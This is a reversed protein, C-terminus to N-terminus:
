IAPLVWNHHAYVWEILTHSEGFRDQSGLLVVVIQHGDREVYSVLCEGANDTWGTKLGKLGPVVGLLKNTTELRHVITGSVDTITVHQTRVIKSILPNQLAVAALIALDRASTVHGYQEIGSPNKFVTKELNLEAAKTNMAEVFHTYGGPYNDALALAADNGSHVLLGFLLNRLTMREGQVLDMTQGIARDENKVEIVTELDRWHDLAVLATMIKTLSAPLTPTDPNKSYMITKSVPDQIVVARASIIPPQTGDSKPYPVQTPVVPEYSRVTSPHIAITQLLNHGPYCFILAFILISCAIRVRDQKLYSRAFQHWSKSSWM